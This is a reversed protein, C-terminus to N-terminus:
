STNILLHQQESPQSLTMSILFSKGPVTINACGSDHFWSPNEGFVANKKKIVTSDLTKSNVRRGAVQGHENLEILAKLSLELKTFGLAAPIPEPLLEFLRLVKPRRFNYKVSVNRNELEMYLVINPLASTAAELYLFAVYQLAM